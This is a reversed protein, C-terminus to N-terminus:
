HDDRLDTMPKEFWRYNLGALVFMVALCGAWVLLSWSVGTQRSVMYRYGFEFVPLNLLYLSYSFLSILVVPRGWKGTKKWAAALPLLAAMALAEAVTVLLWRWEMSFTPALLKWGMWILVSLVLWFFRRAFLAPHEVALAGMLVGLLLTDMRSIVATRAAEAAQAPGFSYWLLKLGLFLFFLFFIWGTYRWKSPKAYWLLLPLLLYFWEEVALSWSERFFLPPGTFLNQLFLFNEWRIMEPIGLLLYTGVHLLAFLYYNPLTRFWRRRYFNMLGKERTKERILMQGILFGSLVFFLAVGDWLGPLSFDPFAFTLHRRSHTLIVLLIALSRWLDLGFVRHEDVTIRAPWRSM